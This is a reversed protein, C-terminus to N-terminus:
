ERAMLPASSTFELIAQYALCNLLVSSPGLLHYIFLFVMFLLAEGVLVMSIYVTPSKM